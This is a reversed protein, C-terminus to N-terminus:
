RSNTAPRTRALGYHGFVRNPCHDPIKYKRRLRIGGKTSGSSPVQPGLKQCGGDKRGRHSSAACRRVNSRILGRISIKTGKVEDAKQKKQGLDAEVSRFEVGHEGPVQPRPSDYATVGAVRVISDEMVDGVLLASACILDDPDPKSLVRRIVGRFICSLGPLCGLLVIRLQDTGAAEELGLAILPGVIRRHGPIGNRRM